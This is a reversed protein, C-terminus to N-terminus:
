ARKAAGGSARPRSRRRKPKPGPRNPNELALEREKAVRRQIEEHPVQLVTKVLKKFRTFAEPGEHMDKNPKTM